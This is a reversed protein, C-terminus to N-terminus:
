LTSNYSEAAARVDAADELSNQWVYGRMEPTADDDLEIVEYDAGDVQDEAIRLNAVKYTDQFYLGRSKIGVFVIRGNHKKVEVATEVSTEVTTEVETVVETAVAPEAAITTKRRPPM